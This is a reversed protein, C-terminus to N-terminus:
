ACLKGLALLRSSSRGWIFISTPSLYFLIRKLSLKHQPHRCLGNVPESPPVPAFISACNHHKVLERDQRM